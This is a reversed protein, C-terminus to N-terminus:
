SLFFLLHYNLTCALIHMYSINPTLINEDIAQMSSFKKALIKKEGINRVMLKEWVVTYNQEGDIECWACGQYSNTDKVNFVKPYDLVYLLNNVKLDFPTNQYSGCLKQNSIELLEDVTIELYPDLSNPEKTDNGPITEVLWVNGVFAM